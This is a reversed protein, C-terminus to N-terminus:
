YIFNPLVKGPHIFVRSVVNDNAVWEPDRGATSAKMGKRLLKRIETIMQSYQNKKEVSLSNLPLFITLSNLLSKNHFYTFTFCSSRWHGRPNGKKLDERKGGRPPM